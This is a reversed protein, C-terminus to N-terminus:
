NKIHSWNAGTKIRYIQMDSVKYKVALNKLTKGNALSKKIARVGAETLKTNGGRGINQRMIKKAKIVAPNNKAHATVQQQSAWKLNKVHNNEKDYDLHIIFKQHTGPKPLFLQAVLRHLLAAYYAGNMKKRWIPFGQQRSLRLLSGDKIEKKFKLLRGHNSLAYRYKVSGQTYHGRIIQWKEGPILKISKGDAM